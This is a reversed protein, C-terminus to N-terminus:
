DISYDISSIAVQQAMGQKDNLGVYTLMMSIAYKVKSEASVSRIYLMM